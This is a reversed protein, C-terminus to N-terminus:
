ETLRRRKVTASLETLMAEMLDVQAPHPLRSREPILNAKPEALRQALDDPKDSTPGNKNLSRKVAGLIQERATTMDRSRRKETKRGLAASLDKGQPAPLDRYKTWGGALPLSKFRGRRRGLAGLAPSIGLGTLRRYLAPRRALFAWVGLGSRVAGPTLHKEFERERWHRMMKPLPIRM